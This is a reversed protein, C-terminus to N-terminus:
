EGLEERVERLRMQMRDVRRQIIDAARQAERARKKAWKLDTVLEWRRQRLRRMAADSFASTM